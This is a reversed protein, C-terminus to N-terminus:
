SKGDVDRKVMGRARDGYGKINSSIIELEEM